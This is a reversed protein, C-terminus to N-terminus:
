INITKYKYMASFTVPDLIFNEELEGDATYFSPSTSSIDFIRFVRYNKGKEKSIEVQNKSVFFPTDYQDTTSKVEVYIPELKGDIIDASLIDYGYSDSEVSLHRIYQDPEYGMSMLREREYELALKEGKLGTKYQTQSQKIYDVKTSIKEQFIRNYRKSRKEGRGVKKLTVTVDRPVDTTDGLANTINEIATDVDVLVSDPDILNIIDEYKKDGIHNIIETYENILAVLSDYFVDENFDNFKFHKSIITTKEYGKATQSLNDGLNITETSFSDEKTLTGYKEIENQFYSTTRKIKKNREKAGSTTKQFFTAGQTLTLYFSEGSKDFLLGLYIGKQVSPSIKPNKSLICIWPVEAYMAQGVSSSIRLVDENIYHKLLEPIERLIISQYTTNSGVKEGITQEKLESLIHLKNVLSM